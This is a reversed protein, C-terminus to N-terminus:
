LTHAVNSMFQYVISVTQAEWISSATFLRGVLAPFLLHLHSGQTLFIGQLLVYCGVGTNHRSFGMSLPAQHSCDMPDCLAPCSKFSKAGM